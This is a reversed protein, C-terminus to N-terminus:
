TGARGIDRFVDRLSPAKRRFRSFYGEHFQVNLAKRFGIMFMRERSQPVGFDKSNLVFIRGQYGAGEIRRIMEERVASFKSLTALAKVNELVFAKPRTRAVVDLFSFVLRSRPDGADMKGAVSFGQCPPGGFVCDIKGPSPLEDLFGNIDGVRLVNEGNNAMYTTSAHKDWENAWVVHFGAQKFGVDMGGAGAFLSIARIM